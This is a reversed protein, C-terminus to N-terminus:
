QADTLCRGDKFTMDNIFLTSQVLAGAGSRWDKPLVIDDKYGLSSEFGSFRLVDDEKTVVLDLTDRLVPKGVEIGHPTTNQYYKLGIFQSVGAREVRQVQYFDYGGSYFEVPKCTFSRPFDDASVDIEEVQSLQKIEGSFESPQRRSEENLTVTGEVRDDGILRLDLVDGRANHGFYSVSDDSSLKRQILVFHGWDLYGGPLTAYRLPAHDSNSLERITLTKTGPLGSIAAELIVQEEGTVPAVVLADAYSLQSGALLIPALIMLKLFLNKM